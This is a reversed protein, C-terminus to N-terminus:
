KPAAETASDKAQKKAKKSKKVKKSKKAKKTPAAKEPATVKEPAGAPPPTAPTAKEQAFGGSVFVVSLLLAIAIVLAKKM